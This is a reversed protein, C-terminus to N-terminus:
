VQMREIEQYADLMKNRVAMTLDMSTNAKEIAIMLDHYEVPRQGTIFDSQMQSANQQDDNVDKMVDMLMQAFNEGSQSGAQTTPVAIQGTLAAQQIAPNHLM